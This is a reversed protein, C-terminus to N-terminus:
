IIGAGVLYGCVGGVILCVAGFLLIIGCGATEAEQQNPETM